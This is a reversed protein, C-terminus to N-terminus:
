KQLKDLCKVPNPRLTKQFAEADLRFLGIEKRPEM